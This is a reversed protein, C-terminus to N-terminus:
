TDAVFGRLLDAEARLRAARGAEGASEFHRAAADRDDIEGRVIRAIDAETLARREAETAGPGAPSVEIALGRRAADPVEVAAANEIAALATRLVSATARDRSKLAARLEERLRGAIM